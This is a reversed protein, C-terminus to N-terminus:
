GVTGGSARSFALGGSEDKTAGNTRAVLPRRLRQRPAKPKNRAPTTIAQETM